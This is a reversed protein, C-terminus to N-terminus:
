RGLVAAGLAREPRSRRTTGKTAVTDSTNYQLDQSTLVHKGFLRVEASAKAGSQLWMGDVETFTLTLEVKKVWWSPNKAPRGVIRLPNYTEADVWMKGRLLDKSERKPEMGLLYCRRGNQTEEGLLEFNYNRETISLEEWDGAMQQEHELIKRVVKEGRGSGQTKKIVYEKSGPPLFSVEALVQSDARQQQDGFLKYERMVVYARVARRNRYQVEAMHSVIAELKAKSAADDASASQPPASQAFSGAAGMLWILAAAAM